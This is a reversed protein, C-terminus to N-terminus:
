KAWNFPPFLSPLLASDSDLDLSFWLRMSFVSFLNSESIKLSGLYNCFWNTLSVTIDLTILIAIWSTFDYSKVLWYLSFTSFREYFESIPLILNFDNFDPSIACFCSKMVSKVRKASFLLQSGSNGGAGPTLRTNASYLMIVWSKRKEGFSKNTTQLTKRETGYARFFLCSFWKWFWFGTKQWVMRDFHKGRYNDVTFGTKQWRYLM